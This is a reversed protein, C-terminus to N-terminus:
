ITQRLCLSFPNSMCSKPVVRECFEACSFGRCAVTTCWGHRHFVKQLVTLIVLVQSCFHPTTVCQHPLLDVAQPSSEVYPPMHRSNSSNRDSSCHLLLRRRSALSLHSPLLILPTHNHAETPKYKSPLGHNNLPTTDSNLFLVDAYM